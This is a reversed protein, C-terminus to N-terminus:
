WGESEVRLPKKLRGTLPNRCDVKREVKRESRTNGAAQGNLLADEELVKRSEGGSELQSSGAGGLGRRRDPAGRGLQRGAGPKCQRSIGGRKHVQSREAEIIITGGRRGVCEDKQKRETGDDGM